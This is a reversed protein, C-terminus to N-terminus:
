RFFDGYRRQPASFFLVRRRERPSKEEVSTRRIPTRGNDAEGDARGSAPEETPSYCHHKNSRPSSKPSSLDSQLVAGGRRKTGSSAPQSACQLDPPPNLLPSSPFSPFFSSPVEFLLFPLCSPQSSHVVEKKRKQGTSLQPFLIHKRRREEGRERGGRHAILLSNEKKEQEGKKAGKRGEKRGWCM